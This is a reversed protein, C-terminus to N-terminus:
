RGFSAAGSGAADAGCRRYTSAVVAVVRGSSDALPSGTDGPNVPATIQLMSRIEGAPDVVRRDLGSVIGTGVSGSLGFPSGVSIVFAGPHLTSSDGLEPAMASFDGELKVVGIDIRSSFGLAKALLIRQDSLRAVIRSGPVRVADSSTVVLGT